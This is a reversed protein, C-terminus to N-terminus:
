TARVFRPGPSRHHLRSGASVSSSHPDQELPRYFASAGGHVGVQLAELMTADAGGGGGGAGAAEQM